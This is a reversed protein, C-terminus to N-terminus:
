LSKENRRRFIEYYKVWIGSYIINRVIDVDKVIPLMEFAQAADAAEMLLLEKVYGDFDANTEHVDIFSNFNGKKIDQELDDYADLIYIYKGLHYGIHYLEKWFTDFRCDARKNCFVTGLLRGFCASLADLNCTEKNESEYSGLKKLNERIAQAQIPYKKCIERVHKRSVASYTLRAFNKDDQWDDLCKYYSLLLCMDAAYDIMDNSFYFHKRVPHVMCHRSRRTTEPEYLASLLIALFTVDYSLSLGSVIGYREKLSNCVGCYYERYKEYDKLKLEAKNAIIYGFM